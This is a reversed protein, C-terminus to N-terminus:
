RNNGPKTKLCGQLAVPGAHQHCLGDIDRFMIKYEQDAQAVETQQKFKGPLQEPMEDSLLILLLPITPM